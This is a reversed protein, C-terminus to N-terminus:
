ASPTNSSAGSTGVALAKITLPGSAPTNFKVTATATQGKKLQATSFVFGPQPNADQGAAPSIALDLKFASANVTCVAGRPVGCPDPLFPSGAGETTNVYILVNNVTSPGNNTLVLNFVAFANAGPPRNAPTPDQILTMTMNADGDAVAPAAGFSMAVAAFMAGAWRWVAGQRTSTESWNLNM